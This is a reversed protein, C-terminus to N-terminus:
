ECAFIKVRLFSTTLEVQCSWIRLLSRTFQILGSGFHCIHKKLVTATHWMRPSTMPPPVLM